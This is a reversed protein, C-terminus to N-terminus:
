EANTVSDIKAIYTFLRAYRAVDAVETM